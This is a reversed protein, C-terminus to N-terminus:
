GVSKRITERFAIRRPATQALVGFKSALKEIVVRLHMEGQGWVVM